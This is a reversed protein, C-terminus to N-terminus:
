DLFNLNVIVATSDLESIVVATNLLTDIAVETPGLGVGTLRQTSLDALRIHTMSNDLSNVVLARGKKLDVAVGKPGPGVGVPSLSPTTFDVIFVQSGKSDTVLARNGSNYVGLGGPLISNPLVVGGTQLMPTSCSEFRTRTAVWDDLGFQSVAIIVPAGDPDEIMKILPTATHASSTGVPAAILHSCLFGGNATDHIAFSFFNSEVGVAAVSQAPFVDISLPMQISVANSFGDTSELDFVLLAQQEESVTLGTGQIPDVGMGGIGDFDSFTHVPLPLSPLPVPSKLNLSFVLGDPDRGASIFATGTTEDVAVGKGQAGLDVVTGKIPIDTPPSVQGDFTQKVELVEGVQGSIILQFSGDPGAITTANFEDAQALAIGYLLKELRGAMDEQSINVATVVAEPLVAGPAGTLTVSGTADPNSATMLNSVPSPIGAPPSFAGCGILGRLLGLCVLVVACSYSCIGIIKKLIGDQM